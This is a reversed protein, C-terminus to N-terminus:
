MDDSYENIKSVKAGAIIDEDNNEEVTEESVEPNKLMQQHELWVLNWNILLLRGNLFHM